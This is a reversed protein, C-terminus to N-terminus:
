PALSLQAYRFRYEDSNVFGEILLRYDHNTASLKQMWFAFGGAEADRRLFGFYLMTVFGRDLYQAQVEPTEIFARLTNARGVTAYNNILSLRSAPSIGSKQILADVFTQGTQFSNYVNQFGQWSMFEDILAARAAQQEAVTKSGNLKSVDTIWESYTPRRGLAAHYFLYVFYGRERFEDSGFFRLATDIRDCTQGAPCNSTMRAKWFAFGAPEPERGLFDIYQERIFFDLDDIPNTTAVQTDDDTITVATTDTSGLAGGAANTLKLTLQETGELYADNIIVLPITKQAEGAAFRLTGAATAYDCRDSAFGTNNTQCPTTGSQDSSSYDVELTASTDGTRTVIIDGHGAGEAFSYSNSSFQVGPADDNQITGQGQNDSITSDQANSLNVFFTENPENATDGNVQVTITQTTVGPNFTLTGGTAVYDSDAATGNATAFDVKVTLNSAQSLTVTFEFNKAAANGETLSVDNISIATQINVQQGGTLTGSSSSFSTDGSYDATITHNGVTLSSTSITAVGSGDIAAPSGINAAGDKFQVTGTPASAGSTVTATFTVSQGPVSPNVSSTVATTTSARAIQFSQQVDTAANFNSNGLQSATIQCLGAGTLHVAGGTVTCQGSASFSVALGSSSTASLTFDADGYTKDALGAFTMTQSAKNIIISQQNDVASNYNQNGAFTATISYTGANVPIDGAGGYLLTIPGLAENNVGTAIAAAGHPQGDYTFSGGTVQLLPTAKQVILQGAGNSAAFTLDGAFQATVADAYTGANIGSLSVGTLTALGNADTIATGVNTGNLTFTISKNSINTGNSSLIATLSVNGGYAGTVDPVSLTSAPLAVALWFGSFISFTGGSSAETVSQGATGDLQMTGASSTDGGGAIVSQTVQYPGGSSQGYGDSSLLCCLVLAAYLVRRTFSPLPSKWFMKKGIEEFDRL